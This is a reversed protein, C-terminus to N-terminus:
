ALTLPFVMDGCFLHFLKLDLYRFHFPQRCAHFRVKSCHRCHHKRVLLKVFARHCAGCVKSEEDSMYPCRYNVEPPCGGDKPQPPQTLQLPQVACITIPLDLYFKDMSAPFTILLQFVYSIDFFQANTSPLISTPLDIILFRDCVNLM